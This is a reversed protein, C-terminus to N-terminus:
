SRAGALLNGTRVWNCFIGISNLSIYTPPPFPRVLKRAMVVGEGRRIVPSQRHGNIAERQREHTPDHTISANMVLDGQIRAVIDVVAPGPRRGWSFQKGNCSMNAL